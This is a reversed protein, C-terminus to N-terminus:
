GLGITVKDPHTPRNTWIRVRTKTTPVQAKLITKDEVTSVIVTRHPTELEGDFRLPDAGIVAESPGLTFETEGDAFTLCGVSICSPTSLIWAGRVPRPPVGGNSDSIFVLSNPPAIKIKSIM